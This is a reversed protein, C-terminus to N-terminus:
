RLPSLSLVDVFLGMRGRSGGVRLRNKPGGMEPEEDPEDAPNIGPRRTAHM